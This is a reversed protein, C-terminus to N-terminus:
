GCGSPGVIALFEGDNVHFSIDSLAKTEGELSHYTYCVNNIRLLEGM